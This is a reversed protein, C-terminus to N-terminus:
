SGSPLLVLAARGAAAAVAVRDAEASSAKVSVVTTGSSDVGPDSVGLVTATRALASGADATLSSSGGTANGGTDIVRVRAGPALGPPFQGPKLALGVVAEGSALTSAPGVQEMTLLSGAVLPVAATRGIVKGRQAAPVPRLGDGAAIRVENLDASTLVQGAPVSRAVALVPERGGVRLSAIAFALSCGVVLLVGAVIWPRQRHRVPPPASAPSTRVSPRPRASTTSTNM